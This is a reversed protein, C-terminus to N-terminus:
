GILAMWVTDIDENMSQWNYWWCCSWNTSLCTMIFYHINILFYYVFLLKDGLNDSPLSLLSTFFRTM